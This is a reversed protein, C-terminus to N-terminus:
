YKLVNEAFPFNLLYLKLLRPVHRIKTMGNDCRNEEKNLSSAEKVCGLTCRTGPDGM